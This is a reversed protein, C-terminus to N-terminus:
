ICGHIIQPEWGLPACIRAKKVSKTLVSSYKRLFFKKRLIFMLSFRPNKDYKKVLGIRKKRFIFVTCIGSM